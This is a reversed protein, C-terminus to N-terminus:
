VETDHSDSVVLVYYMHVQWDAVDILSCIYNKFVLDM